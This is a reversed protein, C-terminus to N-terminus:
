GNEVVVPPVAANTVAVANTAAVTSAAVVANTTNGPAPPPTATAAPANTTEPALAPASFPQGAGAQITTAPASPPENTLPDPTSEAALTSIGTTSLCTILLFHKVTKM